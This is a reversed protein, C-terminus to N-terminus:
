SGYAIEFVNDHGKYKFYGEYFMAGARCDEITTNKTIPEYTMKDCYKTVIDLYKSGIKKRSIADALDYIQTNKGAIVLAALEYYRSAQIIVCIDDNSLIGEKKYKEITSDIDSKVFIGKFIFKNAEM